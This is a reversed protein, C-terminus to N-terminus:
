AVSEPINSAAARPQTSRFIPPDLYSRTNHKVMSGYDDLPLNLHTMLDLEGERCEETQVPDLQDPLFHCFFFIM